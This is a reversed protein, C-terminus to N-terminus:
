DRALLAPVDLTCKKLERRTFLLTYDSLGLTSAIREVIELCESESHGHIMTYVNYNWQPYRAREYGHSVENLSDIVSSFQEIRE